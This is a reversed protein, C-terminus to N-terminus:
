EEVTVSGDAHTVTVRKIKVSGDEEEENEEEVVSSTVETAEKKYNPTAEICKKFCDVITCAIGDKGPTKISSAKCDGYCKKQEPLKYPLTSLNCVRRAEEKKEDKKEPMGGASNSGDSGDTVPKEEVQKKVGKDFEVEKTFVRFDWIKGKFIPAMSSVRRADHGVSVGIMFSANDRDKVAQLGTAEVKGDVLLEFKMSSRRFRLGVKHDKGDAIDTRGTIVGTWGIDFCLRGNRLFLM